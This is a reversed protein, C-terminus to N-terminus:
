RSLATGDDREAVYEAYDGRHDMRYQRPRPWSPAPCPSTAARPPAPRAASQKISLPIRPSCAYSEGCLACLPLLNGSERSHRNLEGCLVRLARLSSSPIIHRLNPFSILSALLLCSIARSRSRNRTTIACGCSKVCQAPRAPYMRPQTVLHDPHRHRRPPHRVVLPERVLEHLGFALLIRGDDVLRRLAVGRLLRSFEFLDPRQEAHLVHSDEIERVLREDHLPLRVGDLHHPLQDQLGPRVHYQRLTWEDVPVVTHRRGRLFSWVSVPM